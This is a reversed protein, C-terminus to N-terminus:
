RTGSGRTFVPPQNPTPVFTDRTDRTDRLDRQNPPYSLAAPTGWGNAELIKIGVVAIPVGIATWCLLRAWLRTADLMDLEVRGFPPTNAKMREINATSATIEFKIEFKIMAEIM